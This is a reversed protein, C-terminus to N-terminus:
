RQNIIWSIYTLILLIITVGALTINARLEKWTM